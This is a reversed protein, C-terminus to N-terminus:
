VSVTKVLAEGKALLCVICRGSSLNWVVSNENKYCVKMGVFEFLSVVTEDDLCLNGGSKSFTSKM